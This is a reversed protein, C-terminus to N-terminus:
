AYEEQGTRRSPVDLLALALLVSAPLLLRALVLVCRAFAAVAEWISFSGPQPVTVHAFDPAIPQRVSTDSLQTEHPSASRAGDSRAPVATVSGVAISAVWSMACLILWASLAACILARVRAGFTDSRGDIAPARAAVYALVAETVVPSAGVTRELRELDDDITPNSKTDMTGGM